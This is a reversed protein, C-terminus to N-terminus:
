KKATETQNWIATSKKMKHGKEGKNKQQM